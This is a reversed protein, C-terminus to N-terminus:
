NPFKLLASVVAKQGSWYPPWKVKRVGGAIWTYLDTVKIERDECIVTLLPAATVSTHVTSKLVFGLTNHSPGLAPMEYPFVNSCGSLALYSSLTFLVASPSDVCIM